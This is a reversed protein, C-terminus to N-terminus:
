RGHRRAARNIQISWSAHALVAGLGFVLLPALAGEAHEPRAGRLLWLAVGGVALTPVTVVARSLAPSDPLALPGALMIFAALTGVWVGALFDGPLTGATFGMVPAVLVAALLTGAALRRRLALLDTGNM